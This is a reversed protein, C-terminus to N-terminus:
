HLVYKELMADTPLLKMFEELSAPHELLSLSDIKEMDSCVEYFRTYMAHFKDADSKSDKPHKYSRLYALRDRVLEKKNGYEVDM